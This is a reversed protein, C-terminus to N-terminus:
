RGGPRTGLSKAAPASPSSTPFYEENLETKVSQEIKQMVESFKQQALSAGIDSQAQALSKVGKSMAKFVYYGSPDEILDSVEGPKVTMVSRQGPPVDNATLKGLYVPPRAGVIGASEYAENQLKILNEGAAARAQLAHAEKKMAEQDSEARSEKGDAQRKQKPIYVRQLESTEYASAHDKYYKEIEAQPVNDADEKLRKATEEAESRLKAFALSKRVRPDKELGRQGFERQMVLLKPYFTALQRKTAADMDLRIANALEDFQARTIATKCGAASKAKSAAAASKPRAPPTECFGDIIIVPADPGIASSRSPSPRVATAATSSAAARETM